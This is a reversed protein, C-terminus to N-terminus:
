WLSRGDPSCYKRDVNAQFAKKLEEPSLRYRREREEKKAKEKESMKREETMSVRKHLFGRM